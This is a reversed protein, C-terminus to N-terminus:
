LRPQMIGCEEWYRLHREPKPTHIATNDSNIDVGAGSNHNFVGERNVARLLEDFGLLAIQLNRNSRTLRETTPDRAKRDDITLTYILRRFFSQM